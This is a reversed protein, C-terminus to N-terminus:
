VMFSHVWQKFLSLVTRCFCFQHNCLLFFNSPKLIPRTFGLNVSKWDSISYITKEIKFSKTRFKRNKKLFIMIFVHNKVENNAPFDVISDQIFNNLHNSYVFRGFMNVWFLYKLSAQHHFCTNEFANAISMM